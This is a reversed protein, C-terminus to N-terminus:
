LCVALNHPLPVPVRLLEVQLTGKNKKKPLNARSESALSLRGVWVTSFTLTSVLCYICVCLFYNLSVYYIVKIKKKDDHKNGNMWQCYCSVNLM